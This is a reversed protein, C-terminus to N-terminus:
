LPIRRVHNDYYANRKVDAPTVHGKGGCRYCTGDRTPKGNVIPGMVWRGTGGCDVCKPYTTTM